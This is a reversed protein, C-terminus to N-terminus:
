ASDLYPPVKLQKNLIDGLTRGEIVDLDSIINDAATFMNLILANFKILIEIKTLVNFQGVFNEANATNGLNPSEIVSNLSYNM